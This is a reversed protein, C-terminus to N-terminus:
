ESRNLLELAQELPELIGTEKQMNEFDDLVHQKTQAWRNLVDSGLYKEIAGRCLARGAAPNVVIANAEVKRRGFKEVYRRVMPISEDAPKGSGTELNDIWTLGNKMIFDYNLGFRDIILDEPDWRTGREIDHFNKKLTDSIGLGVPDHDGCYLLIPIHGTEEMAKFRKAIDARQLISSWGKSTAIGIHYEECIPTFLSVLDTKEVLMQIFYLENDWYDPQYSDGAHLTADIWVTVYDRMSETDPEHIGAFKRADEEAVFDIPLLGNKRCENILNQVRNFEGKPILGLGELQYAWGRSSVKFGTEEDIKLLTNAFATLETYRNAGRSPLTPNKEVM